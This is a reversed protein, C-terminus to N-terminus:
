RRLKLSMRYFSNTLGECHYKEHRSKGDSEEWKFDKALEDRAANGGNQSKSTSLKATALAAFAIFKM